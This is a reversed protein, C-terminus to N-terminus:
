QGNNLSVKTVSGNSGSFLVEVKVPQNAQIGQANNNFDSLDATSAITYSYSKNGVTFHVVRDPGVAATTVGKFDITNLKITNSLDGSDTASLKTATYSGDTNANAEVKITSGVSPLSGNFDGLDTQANTAVSVQSGDPMSVSVSNNGSSQVKGYFSITGQQPNSSTEGPTGESSPTQIGEPTNVAITITNSGTTITFTGDSNQIATISYTKGVQSQLQSV